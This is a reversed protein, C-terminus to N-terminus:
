RCQPESRRRSALLVGIILAAVGVMKVLFGGVRAAKLAVVTPRAEARANAQTDADWNLSTRLITREKALEDDHGSAAIRDAERQSGAYFMFVDEEQNVVVGSKPEVWLTRTTAYYPTLLASGQPDTVQMAALQKQQEPSLDSTQAQTSHEDSIDDPQTYSRTAAKVLNTAPVTQTFVYEGNDQQVYDLPWTKQAIPDFFQYSRRETHFPFFYQLGDRAFDGTDFNLNLAKSKVKMHSTSDIVPYTSHRILRLSDDITIIADNTDTRQLSEDVRLDVEDRVETKNTTVERRLQTTTEVHPCSLPSAGACAPDVMVTAAPQTTISRAIDVPIPKLLATVLAPVVAAMIFLVAATVFAIGSPSLRPKM